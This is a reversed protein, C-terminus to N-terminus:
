RVDATVAEIRVNFPSESVDVTGTVVVEDGLEFPGCEETGQVTIAGTGDDLVFTRRGTVDVVRGRLIVQEGSVPVAFVRHVTSTAGDPPASQPAIDAPTTPLREGPGAPTDAGDDHFGLSPESDAGCGVLLAVVCAMALLGAAVGLIRLGAFGPAQHM